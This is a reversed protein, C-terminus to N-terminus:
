AVPAIQVVVVPFFVFKRESFTVAEQRGVAEAVARPDPDDGFSVPDAVVMRRGSSYQTRGVVLYASPVDVLGIGLRGRRTRGGLLAANEKRGLFSTFM